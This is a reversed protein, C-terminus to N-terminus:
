HQVNMQQQADIAGQVIDHPIREHTVVRGRANRVAEAFRTAWTNEWVLLGASSNPALSQAALQIDEENVLDAMEVPLGSFVRAEEGSLESAELWQVTGDVDKHIVVLDIIRVTGKAVLDKLASMIEGRFQNGPFEIVIYEVPGVAM